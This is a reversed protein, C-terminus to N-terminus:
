ASKGMLSGIRTLGDVQSKQCCQFNGGEAVWLMAVAMKVEVPEWLVVGRGACYDEQSNMMAAIVSTIRGGSCDQERRLPIPCVLNM